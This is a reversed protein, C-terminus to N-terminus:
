QSLTTAAQTVASVTATPFAMGIDPTVGVMNFGTTQISAQPPGPQPVSGTTWQTPYVTVIYAGKMQPVFTTTSAGSGDAQVRYGGIGDPRGVAVDYWAGATLGTLAVQISDIGIRGNANGSVFSLTTAAAM